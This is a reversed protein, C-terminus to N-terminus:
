VKPVVAEDRTFVLAAADDHPRGRVDVIRRATEALSGGLLERLGGRASVGDTFMCLVDSRGMVFSHARPSRMNHGVIGAVCFVPPTTGRLAIIDVNGVGSYEAEGDEGVRLLSIAAGRSGRLERHCHQLITLVDEDRYQTIVDGALVAAAWSDLGHGLGDIVAVLTAGAGELVVVHDGASAFGTAPRVHSAANM